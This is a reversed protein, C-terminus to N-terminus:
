CSLRRFFAFIDVNFSGFFRLFSRFLAQRVARIVEIDGTSSGFSLEDVIGLRHLLTVAGRAYDEAAACSFAVPLEIVLDAGAQVALQARDFKNLLAVDGRQVFNSSLVAIIHTAGNRRTERIHHVHGNHLPNYECIIASVKM